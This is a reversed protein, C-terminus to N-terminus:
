MGKTDAKRTERIVRYYYERAVIYRLIAPSGIRPRRRIELRRTTHSKSLILSCFDQVASYLHRADEIVESIIRKLYM